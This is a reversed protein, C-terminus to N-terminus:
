TDRGTAEVIVSGKMAPHFDCAYDYRGAADFTFSYQQGAYLSGSRLGDAEGSVTHPMSAGHTWTVTTGPKVTLTSPEFRMGSIRVQTAEAVPESDGSDAGLTSAPPRPEATLPAASRAVAGPNPWQSYVPRRNPPIMMGPYRGPAPRYAAPGRPEYATQPGMPPAPYYVGSMNTQASSCGPGAVTVTPATLAAAALAFVTGARRDLTIPKWM